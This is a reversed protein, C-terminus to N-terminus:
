FCVAPVRCYNSVFVDCIKTSLMWLVVFHHFAFMKALVQELNTVFGAHKFAIAPEQCALLSWWAMGVFVASLSERSHMM